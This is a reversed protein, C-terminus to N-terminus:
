TFSWHGPQSEKPARSARHDHMAWFHTTRSTTFVHWITTWTRLVGQLLIQSLM